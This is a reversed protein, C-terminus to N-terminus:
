AHNHGTRQNFSAIAAHCAQMLGDQAPTSSVDLRAHFQAKLAAGAQQRAAANCVWTSLQEFYAEETAVALAGVKDGGDAGAMTLVALGQEMAMAVTGGGGVRPPNVYVDCAAFLAPLGLQPALRHIRVHVPLGELATEKAVGLLLWHVNQHTEMFALMRSRWPLPMETDLRHGTTILVVASKPIQLLARDVPVAPGKPWFRYPYHVLQPVPLDQWLAANGQPDASLWVDVPAIPPLAHLSLGLVPYDEYLRYVLPSMFGVFIVLDPQYAQIEALMQEFRFRLSFNGDALVIQVNANVNLVLSEPEVVFLASAELGGRHHNAAPITSEQATFVRTEVGLKALVNMANLTFTTGGHLSNTVRPTYIAVRLGAGVVRRPARVLPLRQAVLRQLRPANIGRLFQTFADLDSTRALAHYGVLGLLNMVADTTTDTNAIASQQVFWVPNRTLYALAGCRLWSADSNLFELSAMQDCLSSKQDAELANVLFCLRRWLESSTPLLRVSALADSALKYNM